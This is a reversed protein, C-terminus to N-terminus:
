NSDSSDDSEEREEMLDDWEDENNILPEAYMDLSNKLAWITSKMVSKMAKKGKCSMGIQRAFLFVSTLSMVDILDGGTPPPTTNDFVKEIADLAKNSMNGLYMSREKHRRQREAEIEEKSKKTTIPVLPILKKKSM